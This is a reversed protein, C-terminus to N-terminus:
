GSNLGRDVGAALHRNKAPAHLVPDLVPDVQAVQIHRFAQNDISFCDVGQRRFLDHDKTGTGLTFGQSGEGPNGVAGVPLDLQLRMVSHDERGVRNWAVGQANVLQDVLQHFAPGVHDVAPDVIDVSGAVAALFFQLQHDFQGLRLVHDRHVPFVPHLNDVGVQGLLCAM